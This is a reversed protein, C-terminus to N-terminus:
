KGELDNAAFDYVESDTLEAMKVRNWSLLYQLNVIQVVISIAFASLIDKNLFLSLQIDELNLSIGSNKM